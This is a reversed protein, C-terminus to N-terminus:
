LTNVILSYYYQAIEDTINDDILHYYPRFSRNSTYNWINKKSQYKKFKEFYCNKIAGYQPNEFGGQDFVFPINSDVLKQLTNEIICQDKYILLELDKLKKYATLTDNVKSLFEQNINLMTYSILNQTDLNNDSTIDVFRDVLPLKSEINTIKVEDRLVSTGMSIVFDAQEIIAKDVQLSIMLNSACVKSFNIIKFQPLKKELKEHWSMGPYDPDYCGFSDACIYIQKM